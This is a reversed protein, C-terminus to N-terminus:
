IDFRVHQREPIQGPGYLGVLYWEGDEDAELRTDIWKGAMRMGDRKTILGKNVLERARVFVQMHTGTSLGGNETGDEYRVGIRENLANWYLNGHKHKSYGM